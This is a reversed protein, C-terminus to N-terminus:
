FLMCLPYLLEIFHHLMRATVGWIVVDEFPYLLNAIDPMRGHFDKAKHTRVLEKLPIEIVRAIEKSDYRVPGKGDWLGIFVEIDTHNITQFHGMSGILEVHNRTINLEEQLERFAADVPGSDNKDM